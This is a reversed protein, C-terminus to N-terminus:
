NEDRTRRAPPTAVPRTATGSLDAVGDGAARLQHHLSVKRLERAFAIDVLRYFQVNEPAYDAERLAINSYDAGDVASRGVFRCDRVQKFSGRDKADYDLEGAYLWDYYAHRENRVRLRQPRQNELSFAIFYRVGMVEPNLDGDIDFVDYLQSKALFVDIAYLQGTEAPMIQRLESIHGANLHTCGHSMPGRSLLWLFKLTEGDRGRRRESARWATPVFTTREPEMKWWLTHIANHMNTGVHMYPLWPSYSYAQDEPIHDPTETRQHTTFARRGPTPYEPIQRGHVTTYQNWTGVPYIATFEDFTLVGDRAPYLDGSVRALVALYENGLATLKGRDDDPREPVLRVLKELQAGVAADLDSVFLRTPLLLNVLALKRDADMRVRDAPRVQAAWRRVVADVPMRIRFVRGPNLRELLALNRERLAEPTLRREDAVLRPLEVEALRREFEDFSRNQTLVVRGSDILSRYTQERTQLDRAYERLVQDSLVVTARLQNGRGLHIHLRAPDLTRPAFGTYFTPEPKEYAVGYRPPEELMQGAVPRDGSLAPAATDRAAAPVSTCAVLVLTALMASKHHARLRSRATSPEGAAEETRTAISNLSDIRPREMYKDHGPILTM